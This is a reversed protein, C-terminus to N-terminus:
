DPQEQKRKSRLTFLLGAIGILIFLLSGAMAIQSGTEVVTPEFRFEIDNEGAPVEIARLAYNVSFHPTERGNVYAKWGQPYYLESFVALGDHSNSAKYNLRNPQYQYLAIQALSDRNYEKKLSLGPFRSSNIVATDGVSLTGLIQMEEDASNVEILGTVFWANGLADPNEVAYAGEESRQIVYKVNLMNLMQLNGRYIQYEFLEEMSRPKAAHYGGISKHFYSTRAGNLGEQPDYVRFVTTDKRIEKDFSQEAFPENIFRRRVFDDENM